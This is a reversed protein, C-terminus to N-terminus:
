KIKIKLIKIESKKIKQFYIQIQKHNKLNKFKFFFDSKKKRIKEIKFFIM